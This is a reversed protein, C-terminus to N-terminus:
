CNSLNSELPMKKENLQEALDQKVAFRKGFREQLEKINKGGKGIVMGMLKKPVRLTIFQRKDAAMRDKNIMLTMSTHDFGRRYDRTFSIVDSAIAIYKDDPERALYYNYGTLVVAYTKNEDVSEKDFYEDFEKSKKKALEQKAQQIGQRVNEVAEPSLMGDKTKIVYSNRRAFGSRGSYEAVYGKDELIQAFLQEDGAITPWYLNDTEETM